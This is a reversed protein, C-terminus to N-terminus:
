AGEREQTTHHPEPPLNYVYEPFHEVLYRLIETVTMLGMPRMQNDVVPLRRYGGKSMKTIATQMTDSVNITVPNTSMYAEIPGDLSKEDAMVHLADRETFIGQLIGDRCIMVSARQEEKLTQFVERLSTKEEVCIANALQVQAVSELDLELKFVM